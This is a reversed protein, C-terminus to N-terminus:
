VIGKRGPENRYEVVAAGSHVSSIPSTRPSSIRPKDPRTVHFGLNKLLEADSECDDYDLTVSLLDRGYVRDLVHFLGLQIESVQHAPTYQDKVSRAITILCPNHLRNLLSEMQERMEQQEQVTSIHHPLPGPAQDATSSWLYHLYMLSEEEGKDEDESEDSQAEHLDSKDSEQDPESLLQDDLKTLLVKPDCSSAVSTKSETKDKVDNPDVEMLHVGQVDVAVRESPRATSGGLSRLRLKTQVDTCVSDPSSLRRKMPIVCSSTHQVTCRVCETQRLAQHSNTNELLETNESCHLNLKSMAERVYHEDSGLSILPPEVIESLRECALRFTEAAVQRVSSRIKNGSLSLVLTCLDALEHPWLLIAESPPLTGSELCGLWQRLRALQIRRCKNLVRAAATAHALVFSSDNFESESFPIDLSPPPAYLQDILKLQKDTFKDIFPNQTSFVDLDVDLIFPQNLLVCIIDTCAKCLTNTEHIPTVTIGLKVPSQMDEESCYVGEHYFYPEPIDIGLRKTEKNEGINYCTPRRDCLQDSWQPRLWIVHDIHGAYVIPLIWDEISAKRILKQPNRRIETAKLDPICLDPHSDLHLLKLGSFPIRKAGISRYIHALVENHDDVVVVRIFKQM